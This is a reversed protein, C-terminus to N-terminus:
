TELWNAIDDSIFPKHFIGCGLREAEIMQEKEWSGSMVAIKDVNHGQRRLHRIFEIGNMFPMRFDTILVDCPIDGHYLPCLLPSTSTKVNYGLCELITGTIVLIEPEDDVIFVIPKSM